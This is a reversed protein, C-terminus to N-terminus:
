FADERWILLVIDPLRCPRIGEEPGKPRTLLRGVLRQALIVRGDRGDRLFIGHFIGRLLDIGITSGTAREPRTDGIRRTPLDMEPGDEIGGIHM